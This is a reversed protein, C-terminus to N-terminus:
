KDEGPLMLEIEGQLREPVEPPVFAAWGNSSQLSADVTVPGPMVSPGPTFVYAPASPPAQEGEVLAIVRRMKRLISEADDQETITVVTEADDDVLEFRAAGRALKVNLM